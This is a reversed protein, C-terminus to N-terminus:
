SRAEAAPCRPVAMLIFLFPLVMARHRVIAGFNSEFGLMATFVLFVGGCFLVLPRRRAARAAAMLHRWRWLTVVLLMTSDLAAVLALANHAEFVFPRFLFAFMGLPLFTLGEAGTPAKILVKVSGPGGSLGIHKKVGLALAAEISSAEAALPVYYSVHDRALSATTAVAGILVLACLAYAPPRLMVGPGAVPLRSLALLTLTGGVVAMLAIGLPARILFVLATGVALSLVYKARITQSVRAMSYTVCGLSFFMWSDKGLLSSWFALSPFFFMCAAVFRAERSSPFTVQFARLFLYSGLYGIVGSLFFLGILTPGFLFVGFALLLSVFEFGFNAKLSYYPVALAGTNGSLLEGSVSVSQSVYGTFDVIGRLIWLGVVIHALIIPVRIAMGAIAAAVLWPDGLSRQAQRRLLRFIVAGWLLSLAVGLVWEPYVVALRGIVPALVLFLPWALWKVPAPM